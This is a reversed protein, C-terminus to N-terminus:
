CSFVHRISKWMHNLTYNELTRKHGSEAISQIREHSRLLEPILTILEDASHYILVEQGPLFVEAVNNSRETLLCSGIGTTEYMRINGSWPGAVDIHCNLVIKASALLKYMALGYVPTEMTRKLLRIRREHATPKIVKKFHKWSGEANGRKLMFWVSDRLLQARSPSVEHDLKGFMKIDIGADLLTALTMERRRYHPTINGVFLVDISKGTNDVKQLVASDFCPHAFAHERFRDVFDGCWERLPTVLTDFHSVDLKEPLPCAIWTVAKRCHQVALPVLDDYCDFYSSTWLVDPGLRRVQELAIEKEWKEDSYSTFDNEEAWKRQMPEANMVFFETLFGEGNMILSLGGPWGFHDALIAERQEECSSDALGPREAYFSSLYEGYYRWLMVVHTM